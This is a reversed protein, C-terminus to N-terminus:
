RHCCSWPSPSRLAIACFAVTTLRFLLSETAVTGALTVTGAPAIEALKVTVVMGTDTVVLASMVPVRPMTERVAVSVTIGAAASVTVMVRASHVGGGFAAQADLGRARPRIRGQLDEDGGGFLEDAREGVFTTSFEAALKPPTHVRYINGDPAVEASLRGAVNYHLLNELSRRSRNTLPRPDPDNANRQGLTHGGAPSSDLDSGFGVVFLSRGCRCGLSDPYRRQPFVDGAAKAGTSVFSNLDFFHGPKKRLGPQDKPQRVRANPTRRVRRLLRRCRTKQRIWPTARRMRSRIWRMKLPTRQRTLPTRHRAVLNRNVTFGMVELRLRFELIARQQEQDFNNITEAPANEPITAFMELM